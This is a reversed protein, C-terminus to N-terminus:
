VTSSIERDGTPTGVLLGSLLTVIDGPAQKIAIERLDETSTGAPALLVRVDRVKRQLAALNVPQGACAVIVDVAEQDGTSPVREAVLEPSVFHNEPIVVILSKRPTRRPRASAEAFAARGDFRDREEGLSGATASGGTEDSHSYLAQHLLDNLGARFM